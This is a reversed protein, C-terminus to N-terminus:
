VSTEDSSSAFFTSEVEQNNSKMKLRQYYGLGISLVGLVVMSAICLIRTTEEFMVVSILALVFFLGAVSYLAIDSRMKM